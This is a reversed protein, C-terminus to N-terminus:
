VCPGSVAMRAAMEKAIKTTARSRIGAGAAAVTMREKYALQLLEGVEEGTAPHVIAKPAAWPWREDLKTPDFAVHEEGVIAAMQRWCSDDGM